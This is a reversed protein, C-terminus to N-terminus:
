PAGRDEGEGGPGAPQDPDSRAIQFCRRLPGVGLAWGAILTGLSWGILLWLWRARPYPTVATLLVTAIRFVGYAPPLVLALRRGWPQRRVLGWGAALFVVGWAASLGALVQFPGGPEWRALLSTNEIAQWVRAGNVLALAWYGLTLLTLWRAHCRAAPSGPAPEDQHANM